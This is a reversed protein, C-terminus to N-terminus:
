PVGCRPISERQHADQTGGIEDDSPARCSGPEGNSHSCWEISTEGQLRRNRRFHHGFAEREQLRVSFQSNIIWLTEAYESTPRDVSLTASIRWLSAGQIKQTNRRAINM